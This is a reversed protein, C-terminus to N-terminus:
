LPLRVPETIDTRTSRAEELAKTGALLASSRGDYAELLREAAAAIGEPRAAFLADRKAQRM